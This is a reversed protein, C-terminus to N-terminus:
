ASSIQYIHCTTQGFLKIIKQHFETIGNIFIQPMDKLKLNVYDIGEFQQFIWRLTPSKTPQGIQNPVTQNSSELQKRMRRQAISYVMLSLTMIMLLGEIRCPKKVFLSSTFFVPDKLFRFGREVQSQEKYVILVDSDSMQKPDISTALVFCAKLHQQQTLREKDQKADALIQWKIDKIPTDPTPKGRRAYKTHKNFTCTDIQHFKWSAALEELAKKAKKRTPFRKAQLHFLQKDIKEKEKESQKKLTAGARNFASQSWIVIWRQDINFHGLPFSQYRYDENITKWHDKFRLAQQTVQREAALTGPVRVVFPIKKLNTANNETYGKSDMVICRPQSGDRLQKILQRVRNGFITNDSANGNHCKCIFPVGGDQTVVLELVAQKLDPRHDKSYGHTIHIEHEDSDPLYEGTLSFTSTDLHSFNMEIGEKECIPIALESFLADIGYQHVDDLGRGLKFRNFHSAEVGERFLVNLPKNEFFQPTLSLPRQSFGLGNMIMAAIAEGTSVYEKEDTPIRSDIMEILEIDKIVGAVIGLHDLRKIDMM